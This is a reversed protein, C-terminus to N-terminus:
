QPDYYKIHSFNENQFIGAEDLETVRRYLRSRAKTNKPYKKELKLAYANARKRIIYEDISNYESQHQMLHILISPYDIIEDKVCKQELLALLVDQPKKDKLKHPRQEVFICRERLEDFETESLSTYVDTYAPKPKNTNNIIYGIHNDPAHAPEFSKTSGPTDELLRNFKKLIASCAKTDTPIFWGQNHPKGTKTGEEEVFLYSAKGKSAYKKFLEHLKSTSLVSHDVRLTRM